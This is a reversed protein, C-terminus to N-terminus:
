HHGGVLTPFAGFLGLTRRAASTLITVSISKQCHVKPSAMLCSDQCCIVSWCVLFLCLGLGCTHALSFLVVTASLPYASV